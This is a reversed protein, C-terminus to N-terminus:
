YATIKVKEGLNEMNIDVNKTIMNIIINDAMIKGQLGEYVVNDYIKVINEEFNLNLEESYIINSMYEIKINKSFNTNYNSNNYIANESTINLKFNNEDKFVAKVGKMFVIEMDNEYVLESFDATIMYETNNDFNINYRLNKIINNKGDFSQSLEKDVIKPKDKEFNQFYILYFSITILILILFLSYQLLKKM